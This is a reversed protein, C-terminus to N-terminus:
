VTSLVSGFDPAEIGPQEILIIKINLLPYNFSYVSILSTSSTASVIEGNIDLSFTIKAGTLTQVMKFQKDFTASFPLFVSYIKSRITYFFNNDIDYLEFTLFVNNVIYIQSEM